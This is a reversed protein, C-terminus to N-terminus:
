EAAEHPRALILQRLGNARYNIQDFLALIIMTVPFLAASLAPVVDVPLSYAFVVRLAADVLLGVGWTVSSSRWGRRFNLPREWLWDWSETTFRERGELAARAFAFSLPRERRSSALLWVGIVATLWAEKALLFRPSGSILSGEVGLLMTSLVFVGLRDLTRSRILGALSSAAPVIAGLLLSLFVGTGAARLVYYLALLVGVDVVLTCIGSPPRMM